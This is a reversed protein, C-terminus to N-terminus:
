QGSAKKVPLPIWSRWTRPCQKLKSTRLLPERDSRGDSNTFALCTRNQPNRVLRIPLPIKSRWSRATQSQPEQLPDGEEGAHNDAHEALAVCSLNSSSQQVLTPVRAPGSRLSTRTKWNEVRQTFCRQTLGESQSLWTEMDLEEADSDDITWGDEDSYQFAHNLASVLDERRWERFTRHRLRLQNLKCQM